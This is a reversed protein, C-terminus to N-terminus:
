SSPQTNQPRYQVISAETPMGLRVSEYKGEVKAFVWDWAFAVERLPYYLFYFEDEGM